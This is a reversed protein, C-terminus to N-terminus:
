IKKIKRHKNNKNTFDNLVYQYYNYINDANTESLYYKKAENLTKINLNSLEDNTMKAVKNMALALEDSNNYLIGSNSKELLEKTGATNKGIVFCGTLMAEATIRGMAEFYSPVILAKAKQMLPKIDKLFGVFKVRDEINHRKIISLLKKEYDNDRIEGAIVMNINKNNKAFIGFVELMDHVGKTEIIRGTFLFYSEKHFHYPLLENMSFMGNYIFTDKPRTLNWYDYIGKTIAICYSNNMWRKETKIFPNILKHDLDQYERIHWVHPIKFTKSLIYGGFILSNNTHIIDPSEKKIIKIFKLFAFPYKRFRGIKARLSEKKNGMHPILLSNLVYYKINNESLVDTLLGQGTTCVVSEVRNKNCLITQLISRNDGYLHVGSILYIVKM